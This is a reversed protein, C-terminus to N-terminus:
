SLRLIYQLHIYTQTALRIVPMWCITHTVCMVDNCVNNLLICQSLTMSILAGLRTGLANGEGVELQPLIAAHAFTISQTRPQAALENDFPMRMQNTRPALHAFHWRKIFM